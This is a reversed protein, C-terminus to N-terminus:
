RAVSEHVFTVKGGIDLNVELELSSTTKQILILFAEHREENKKHLTNLCVYM